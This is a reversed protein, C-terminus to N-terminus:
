SSMGKDEVVDEDPRKILGGAYLAEITAEQLDKFKSILAPIADHVTTDYATAIQMTGNFARVTCRGAGMEIEISIDIDSM